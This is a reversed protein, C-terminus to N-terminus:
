KLLRRTNSLKINPTHRKWYYKDSLCEAPPFADDLFLVETNVARSVPMEAFTLAMLMHRGDITAVNWGVYLATETWDPNVCLAVEGNLDAFMGIFRVCAPAVPHFDTYGACTRKGFLGRIIQGPQVTGGALTLRRPSVDLPAPADFLLHSDQPIMSYSLYDFAWVRTKM